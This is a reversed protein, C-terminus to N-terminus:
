HVDGHQKIKEDEYPAVRRRYLEHSVAALVGLARNYNFYSPPYLGLILRSVVYNLKGDIKEVPTKKLTEILSDIIPDLEKRDDPPIYPM